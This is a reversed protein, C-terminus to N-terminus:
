SPICEAGGAKAIHRAVGGQKCIVMKVRMMMVIRKMVMISKMMMWMVIMM